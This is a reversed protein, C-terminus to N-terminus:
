EAADDEPIEQLEEFSGLGCSGVTTNLMNDVVTIIENRCLQNSSIRYQLRNGSRSAGSCKGSVKNLYVDRGTGRVLFTYDDIPDISRIQTTSLCTRTEGTAEYKALELAAAESMERDGAQASVCASLGIAAGALLFLNQIM